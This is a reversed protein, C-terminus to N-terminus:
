QCAECEPDDTACFKPEEAAPVAALTDASGSPVANLQGARTTSKEAHTAGMARLYYTTKLGRIWAQKYTEDLTRGSAGAMYINLSQSQDIWKQRRAGAEVLWRPEVEFATAYLRRLGAPARDIRALNGDFYKLDSIMVEDWLGERKLEAVLYENVVTFEGSLNSKVYLNQYTPEISASVGIINAITATPAIAICNSNRMGHKRIRARLPEWDLASSRDVEVYGGREAALLDLTDQPLI